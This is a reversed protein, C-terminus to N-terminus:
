YRSRQAIYGAVRPTITTNDAQVYAGDTTIQFRGVTWYSWGFHGAAVFALLGIAVFAYTRLRHAGGRVNPTQARPAASFATSSSSARERYRDGAATRRNGTMRTPM